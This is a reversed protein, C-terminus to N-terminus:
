EIDKSMGIIVEVGPPAMKQVSVGEIVAGSHKKGVAEWIDDYAKAVQKSTRLGLKVGGADSKHLIAPSVVKLVVPFGLEHSLCIAEDKSKAMRTDSVNIGAEKLLAKSEIETLWARGENRVKTIIQDKIM